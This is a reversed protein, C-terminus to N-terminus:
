AVNDLVGTFSSLIYLFPLYKGLYKGMINGWINVMHGADSQTDSDDDDDDALVLAFGGDDFSIGDQTHTHIHTPTNEPHILSPTQM